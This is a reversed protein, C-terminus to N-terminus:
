ESMCLHPHCHNPASVSVLHIKKMMELHSGRRISSPVGWQPTENWSRGQITRQGQALIIINARQPKELLIHRESPWLRSPAQPLTQRTDDNVSTITVSRLSETTFSPSRLIGAWRCCYVLIWLWLKVPTKNNFCRLSHLTAFQNELLVNSKLKKSTNKYSLLLLCKERRSNFPQTPGSLMRHKPFTEKPHCESCCFGIICGLKSLGQKVVKSWPNVKCKYQILLCSGESVHKYLYYKLIELNCTKWKPWKQKRKSDYDFYVFSYFYLAKVYLRM